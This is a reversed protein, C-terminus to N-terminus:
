GRAVEAMAEKVAHAVLDVAEDDLSQHCPLEVLERRLAAVEPFRAVDCTPHGTSWFDVAEVGRRALAAVLAGKDHARVALSLPCVGPALPAGVLPVAGDLAEALRRFNRRRRRRVMELDFRQLLRTVLASAALHLEVRRLHSTGTPLAVRWWRRAARRLARAGAAVGPRTLELHALVRGAAHHATEALPPPPTPAREFSGRALGGHPLPLSKYLCFIAADGWWGLPRGDPATSLLALACDEILPVGRARCLAVVECVPQALGLYHTLYVARVPAVRALLRRLEDLDVRLAADVRYFVPRAGAALLAEIEVGHHYAPALVAGGGSGLLRRAAHFVAARALYFLQHGPQDFPFAAPRAPALTPLLLAPDLTPLAPIRPTAVPGAHGGRQTV